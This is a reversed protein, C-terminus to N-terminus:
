KHKAQESEIGPVPGMDQQDMGIEEMLQKIRANCDTDFPEHLIRIRESYTKKICLDTVCKKDWLAQDALVQPLESSDLWASKYTVRGARNILFVPNNFQPDVFRQQISGDLTDLLIPFRVSEREKLRRAFARKEDMSQHPRIVSGPHAERTYVYIFEITDSFETHLQNLSPTAININTVCPPCAYSGFVLLVSKKGRLTAIDLEGGDLLEGQCAPAVAGLPTRSRFSEILKPWEDSLDGALPDTQWARSWSVPHPTNYDDSNSSQM